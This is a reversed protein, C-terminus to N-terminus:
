SGAGQSRVEIRPDIWIISPLLPQESQVETSLILTIARGRYSTLDLLVPIPAPRLPQTERFLETEGGDATQVAVRFTVGTPPLAAGAEEAAIAIASLFLIREGADPVTLDFATAAPASQTFSLAALGSRIARLRYNSPGGDARLDRRPVEYLPIVQDYIPTRDAYVSLREISLDSMRQSLLAPDTDFLYIDTMCSFNRSRPFDLVCQRVEPTILPSNLPMHRVTWILSISGLVLAAANLIGIWRTGATLTGSTRDALLYRTNLLGLGVIGIWLLSPPPTYRTQIPITPFPDPFEHARGLAIAGASALAFLILILWPGAERLSRARLWLMNLNLLALIVGLAGLPVAMQYAQERLPTLPSGLVALMFVVIRVPDRVLGASQGERDAGIISFDYNTFFLAVIVIAAAAFLLYHAPKRYGRLWLLLPYLGWAAIGYILSFFVGFAGVIAGAVAPFGIPLRQIAWIGVILSMIGQTWAMLYAWLWIDRQRLSLLLAAGLVAGILTLPGGAHQQRLLDILLVLSVLATAITLGIQVRLDWRTLPVLAASVLNTFLQRHENNQLFFDSLTLRGQATKIAIEASDLWEDMYPVNAANRSVYQIVLLACVVIILGATLNAPRRLWTLKM